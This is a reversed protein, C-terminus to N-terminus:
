VPLNKPGTSAFISFGFFRLVSSAASHSWRPRPRTLAGPKGRLGGDIVVAAASRMTSGRAALHEIGLPKPEAVFAAVM